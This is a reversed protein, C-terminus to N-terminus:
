LSTAHADHSRLDSTINNNRYCRTRTELSVVFLTIYIHTHTYIYIHSKWVKCIPPGQTTWESRAFQNVTQFGMEACVISKHKVCLLTISAERWTYKIINTSMYSGSKENMFYIESIAKRNLWTYKISQKYNYAHRSSISYREPIYIYALM